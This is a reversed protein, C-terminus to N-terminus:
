ESEKIVGLCWDDFNKGEKDCEYRLLEYVRIITENHIFVENGDIDRFSSMLYSSRPNINTAVGLTVKGNAINM